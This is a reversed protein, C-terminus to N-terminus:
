SKLYNFITELCWKESKLHKGGGGRGRFFIGAVEGEAFFTARTVGAIRGM